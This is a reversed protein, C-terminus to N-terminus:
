SFVLAAMRAVGRIVMAYVAVDDARVMLGFM